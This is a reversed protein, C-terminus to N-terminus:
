RRHHLVQCSTTGDFRSSISTALATRLGEKTLSWAQSPSDNMRMFGFLTVIGIAFATLGLITDHDGQFVFDWILTGAAALVLILIALRLLRNSM